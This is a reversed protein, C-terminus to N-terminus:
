NQLDTNDGITQKEPLIILKSKNPLAFLLEFFEPMVNICGSTIRNDGGYGNTLREIRKQEPKGVFVPHIALINKNSKKFILINSKMKVSYAKELVYEGAPTIKSTEWKSFDDSKELGFLAPIIIAEQEARKLYLLGNTKDAIITNDYNNFSVNQVVYSATTPIQAMINQSIFFLLIIYIIKVIM